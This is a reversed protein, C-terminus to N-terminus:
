QSRIHQDLEHTATIHTDLEARAERLGALPDAIRDRGSTMAYEALSQDLLRMEEVIPQTWTLAQIQAVQDKLLAVELLKSMAEEIARMAKDTARTLSSEEAFRHQLYIKAAEDLVTAFEDSLSREGLIINGFSAYRHSFKLILDRLRRKSPPVARYLRFFTFWAGAALMVTLATGLLLPLGKNGSVWAFFVSLGGFTGIGAPIACSLIFLDRTPQRGEEADILAELNILERQRVVGPLRRSLRVWSLAGM